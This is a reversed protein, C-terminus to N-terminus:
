VLTTSESSKNKQIHVCAVKDCTVENIIITKRNKETTHKLEGDPASRSPFHGPIGTNFFICKGDLSLTDCVVSYMFSVLSFNSPQTAVLVM